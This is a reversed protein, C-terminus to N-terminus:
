RARARQSGVKGERIRDSSRNLSDLAEGTTGLGAALRPGSSEAPLAPAVPTAPCGQENTPVASSNEHNQVVQQGAINAQKIATFTDGKRPPRRYEALALVLRRYTNSARDAYENVIRIQELGTQRNALATLHMVRAHALLMQAVLMEEVPDRPVMRAM